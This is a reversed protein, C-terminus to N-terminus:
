KSLIGFAVLLATAIGMLSEGAILGSSVPVVAVKAQEPKARKYVDAILAGLFIAIANPAGIFTAIGLGSPSPVFPKLKKPGFRELTALFLGVAIGIAASWLKWAHLHSIGKVVAETVAAWVKAGPAPWEKGGLLEVDPILLNFAPVVILAGAIVGFLQGYLQQRPNAGLLYGSKLDTLLDAAHLGVGGTINASMVNTAVHGPALGGFIVQTVPGLAKTPTVDTEGTVRAAVFGMLISLPLALFGAWLPIDFMFYGLLVVPPGFILFGLPLWSAPAEIAAMPDVEASGKKKFLSALGSFTKAVSKWEFAFALLASAVLCGAGAWLTGQILQKFDLTGDPKVAAVVDHAVFYPATFTWTIISGLLVSWGTRLSLIGGVGLMLFSSDLAWTYEGAPREAKDTIKWFDFRFEGALLKLAVLLKLAAAVLGSLFLLKAEPGAKHGATTGHLAQITEATATGTPFPLQELNILQRKIPIAAFVGLAAIGGFWFILGVTSPRPEHLMLLAPLAAMNGGGTMYGAASAVSGMANNELASFGAKVAGLKRLVNFTAFALICATVTVGISWGTKLVVYLNSLCMVMGLLMGTIIARVTLQRENKRYVNELWHREPDM